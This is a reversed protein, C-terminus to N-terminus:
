EMTLDARGRGSGLEADGNVSGGRGRRRINLCDRDPWESKIELVDRQGESSMVASGTWGPGYYGLEQVNVKDLCFSFEDSLKARVLIGM